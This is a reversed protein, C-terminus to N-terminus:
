KKEYKIGKKYIFLKLQNVATELMYVRQELDVIQRKQREIIPFEIIKSM